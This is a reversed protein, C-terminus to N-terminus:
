IDARNKKSQTKIITINKNDPDTLLGNKVEGLLTGNQEHFSMSATVDKVTSQISLVDGGRYLILHQMNRFFSGGLQITCPTTNNQAYTRFPTLMSLGVVFVLAINGNINIKNKM